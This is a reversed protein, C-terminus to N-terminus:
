PDRRGSGKEKPYGVTMASNRGAANGLILSFRLTSILSDVMGLSTNIPHTFTCPRHAPAARVSLVVTPGACRLARRLTPIARLGTSVTFWADIGNSCNEGATDLGRQESDLYEHAFSFCGHLFHFSSSDM